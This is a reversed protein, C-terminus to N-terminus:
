EPATLHKILAMAADRSASAVHLGASYTTINQISAPLPGLDVLGAVGLFESVQAFAIDVDGRALIQAVEAGSSPQKVKAAIQEAIGMT